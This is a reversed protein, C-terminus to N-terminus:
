LDCEKCIKSNPEFELTVHDIGINHLTRKMQMKEKEIEVLSMDKKLSIHCSLVTFRGDLSWLHIDHINDILENELLLSKINKIDVDDPSYQLFIKLINKINPYIKSLMFIAIAISLLPDLIPVDFFL